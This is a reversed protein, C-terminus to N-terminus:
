SKKQIEFYFCNREPDAKFALLDQGTDDIEWVPIEISGGARKVFVILLQELMVRLMAAHEPADLNLTTEPPKQAM